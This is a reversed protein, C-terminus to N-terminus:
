RCRTGRNVNHEGGRAEGGVHLFGVGPAGSQRPDRTFVSQVAAALNDRTKRLAEPLATGAPTISHLHLGSLSRVSAVHGAFVHVAKGLALANQAIAWPGKGDLSSQDFRGEGTVVIDAAAIRRDLDFWAAVLAYGPVLRAGAACMLGFTIGGAAGSGPQASLSEPRKFHHCLLSAIRASERELRAEDAPKLGKQPAYVAAAGHPGLLENTVDCAIRIPLNRPSFTGEIRVLEPWHVPRPPRLIRGDSTRFELGLESMIGLGLDHTASGGAGILVVQAGADIAARILEGTGLTSAQWPDRAAPRLLALGSAQAMEIVAVRSDGSLGPLDLMLRAAPPIASLQVMGFNAVVPEGTPGTVQVAHLTGGIAATLIDCFGEGGDTLPITDVSCDFGASTLAAAAIQCAESASLADKFKDFALLIRM